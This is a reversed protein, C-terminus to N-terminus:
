RERREYICHLKQILFVKDEGENAIQERLLRIVRRQGKVVQINFYIVALLAGSAFLLFATSELLHQHIWTFWSLNPNSRELLLLWSKGSEYISESGRFPGCTESPKASWVAYCFFLAAGLFSPFFLLTLFVTSMHSAQWPKSPAQCNQVLSTKKIYFLLLLKVMQVAPLLPAFLVGLWTLTQGYILELVNRTIDFEPRQERKLRKELLLRWLLEGFVTDLLAFVFDMVAFRYLDQGVCTEWCAEAACVGSRSLWQYCLLGLLVSKLLLNRGVAVYVELVPSECKEWAALANYVHPVATCLLTVAVPLALRAAEQQREGGAGQMHESFHHVALACGLVTGLVLVWALLRVAMHQLRQCRSRSCSRLRREALLEKLQTRINDSQVKAWRRRVVKFDWACFVKIAADGAPGGLRYSEGFSRAMSCLVLVCTLVFCVGVTLAYALPLVYPLPAAAGHARAPLSTNSYYGYYLLSHTFYGAGTLIEPGTFPVHSSAPTPPHAAQVAVVFGLLPLFLVTNFALLRKLFLFYSLVSSGFRGSIRKLAGHWPRADPCLSLLGYWLSRCGQPLSRPCRPAACGRGQRTGWVLILHYKCLGCPSFPARRRASDEPSGSQRSLERRLSRKEALSLPMARLLRGRQGPSLSMMEKALLSRSEQLTGTAPDADPHLSLQRLSPRGSRLRLRATRNCYQAIIAGRSRGAAATLATLRLGVNRAR